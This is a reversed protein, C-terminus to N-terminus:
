VFEPDVSESKVPQSQVPESKVSEFSMSKIYESQIPEAQVSEPVRKQKASSLRQVEGEVKDVDVIYLQISSSTPKLARHLTAAFEIDIVICVIQDAAGRKKLKDGFLYM